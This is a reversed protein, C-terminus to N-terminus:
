AASEKQKLELKYISTEVKAILERAKEIDILAPNMSVQLGKIGQELFCFPSEAREGVVLYNEIPRKIGKVEVPVQEACRLQDSILRFTNLSILIGDRCAKGELRSAINVTSGIATYDMRDESGFNGVACYGTHIGIRIHLDSFIGDQRWKIRLCNLSRRMELAMRVCCLADKRTGLSEHDGFFVMIGDGMFKDVTGGHEIAIQAMTNLYENLIATVTEEELDDMLSTFGEIDSFFVTLRRRNTQMNQRSTEISSFVQPAVYRKLYDTLGALKEHQQSATRRSKDMNATFRFGMFGVMCSHCFLLFACLSNTLASGSYQADAGLLWGTVAVLVVILLNIALVRPHAIILTSLALPILFSLSAFLYFGNAIILCGVLLSDACLSFRAGTASNFRLGTVWYILHPYCTLLTVLSLIPLSLQMEGPDQSLTILVTLGFAAIRPRYLTKVLYHFHDTKLDQIPM